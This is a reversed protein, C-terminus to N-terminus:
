LLLSNVTGIHNGNLLISVTSKLVSYKILLFLTDMRFGVASCETFLAWTGQGFVTILLM